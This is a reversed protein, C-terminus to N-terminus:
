VWNDLIEYALRSGYVFLTRDAATSNKFSHRFLQTFTTTGTVPVDSTKQFLTNADIQMDVRPTGETPRHELRIAVRNASIAIGSDSSSKASGTASRLHWNNNTTTCFEAGYKVTNSDLDTVLDVNPGGHYAISTATGIRLKTQFFSRKAFNLKLGSKRISAASGSTTGTAMLIAGEGTTGDTNDVITATSTTTNAYDVETIDFVYRPGTDMHLPNGSYIDVLAGGQATSSHSHSAISSLDILSTGDTSTQYVHDIILGSGTETCKYLVHLDKDLGALDSGPGSIVTVKNVRSVSGPTQDTWPGSVDDFVM